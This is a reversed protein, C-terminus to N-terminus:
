FDAEGGAHGAARGAAGPHRLGGHDAAAVARCAAVEDRTRATQLRLEALKARKPPRQALEALLRFGAERRAAAVNPELAAAATESATSGSASRRGSTPRVEKAIARFCSQLLLPAPSM